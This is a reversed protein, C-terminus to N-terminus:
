INILEYNILNLNLSDAIDKTKNIDDILIADVLGLQRAKEVASLVEKDQCCAVAIKKKEKKKALEVLENLSKINICRRDKM